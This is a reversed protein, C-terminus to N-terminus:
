RNNAEYRIGAWYGLASALFGSIASPIVAFGYLIASGPASSVEAPFATAIYEPYSVGAAALVEPMPLVLGEMLERAVTVTTGLIMAAVAAAEGGRRRLYIGGVLPVFLPVVTSASLELLDMITKGSFATAMSAATVLLVSLRSAALKRNRFWATSGLLNHGLVTAPSLVASTATSVIISILSVVFIVTLVPRLYQSALVALIKGETPDPMLIRSALGLSLPVLGFIIYIVGALVCARRATRADKSAFVRQVLDQSPIQGLLGSAWIGLWAVAAVAGAEPMLTLAEAPTESLLRGIGEVPTGGGLEVFTAAGLIVLTVLVVSIQLADTLTVSWLGGVLTYLLVVGAALCIGAGPDIGFFTEQIASLAVYQAAIWAFYTPVLIVSSVIESKPGFARGYFDALTLLRMEWLPKAFFLGALVLAGGTAFPDLIAGRVGQTRAAEAAGLISAAGFWTALLTAWALWLPLRRGAVIYDEENRVRRGAHISVVLIALLYVGVVTGLLTTM